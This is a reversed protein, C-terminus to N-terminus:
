TPYWLREKMFAVIPVGPNRTHVKSVRQPCLRWPAITLSAMNRGVNTKDELRALGDVEVTLLRNVASIEKVSIQMAALMRETYAEHAENGSERLVRYHTSQSSSRM